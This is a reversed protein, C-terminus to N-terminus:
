GTWKIRRPLNAACKPCLTKGNACVRWGHEKIVERAIAATEFADGWDKECEDSQYGEAYWGDCSVTIIAQISM